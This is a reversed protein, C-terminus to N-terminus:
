PYTREDIIPDPDDYAEAARQEREDAERDAQWREWAEQDIPEEDAPNDEPAIM